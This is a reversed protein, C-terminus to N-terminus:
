NLEVEPELLAGNKSVSAVTCATRNFCCPRRKGAKLKSCAVEIRRHRTQPHTTARIWRIWDWRAMPTIDTWVAQVQPDAALAYRLDEPLEPDPWVESPEVALTVFDGVSAKTAKLMKEDVHLWHSGKGDPELAAQFQYENLTGVVMTMGRSPLQASAEQPLRLLTLSGINFIKAEAQITSM